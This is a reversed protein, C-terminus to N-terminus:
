RGREKLELIAHCIAEPITSGEGFWMGREIRMISMRWLRRTIDLFLCPYYEREVLVGLLDMAANSRFYDPYVKLCEIFGDCKGDCERGPDVVGVKCQKQPAAGAWEALKKNIAEPTM